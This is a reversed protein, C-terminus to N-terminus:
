FTGFFLKRKQELANSHDLCWLVPGLTSVIQVHGVGDHWHLIVVALPMEAGGQADVDVSFTFGLQIGPAM